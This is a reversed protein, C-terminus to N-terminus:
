LVVTDAGTHIASPSPIVIRRHFTEEARQFTLQDMMAYIVGTFLCPRIQEVIDLGEVVPASSMRRQAVKTRFGKLSEVM